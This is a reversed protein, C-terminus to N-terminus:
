TFAITWQDNGASTAQPVLRLPWEKIGQQEELGAPRQMQSLPASVTVTNGADTGHKAVVPVRTRAMALAFPNLATLPLAEVTTEIVESRGTILVRESGILFRPEVQNGFALSFSRMVLPVEDISFVPTNATTAVLVEAELQDDLDPLVPTAETPMVFLGTLDFDVVPIGSAAIRVTGTGRTGILAYRTDGIWLHIAGSEHGRSVPSYAVSTDPVIVQACGCIRLLKGIVPPVGADGSPLIEATFALRSIVDVPITPQAGMHPRELNRSVDQGEMPQLRINTALIADAATLTPATGYASEIGLLFVKEDWYIAM